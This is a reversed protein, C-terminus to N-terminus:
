NNTKNYNGYLPVTSLYKYKSLDILNLNEEPQSEEVSRKERPKRQTVFVNQKATRTKPDIYMDYTEAQEANWRELQEPTMDKFFVNAENDPEGFYRKLGFKKYTEGVTNTGNIRTTVSPTVFGKNNKALRYMTPNIDTSYGKVVVTKQPKPSVGTYIYRLRNFLTPYDQVLQAATRAFTNQSLPVNDGIANTLTKADALLRKGVPTSDVIRGNIISVDPNLHFEPNTKMDNYRSSFPKGFVAGGREIYGGPIPDQKFTPKNAIYGVNNESTYEHAWDGEFRRYPFSPKTNYNIALQQRRNQVADQYKRFKEYALHPKASLTSNNIGNLLLIDMTSSLNPDGMIGVNEKNWPSVWRQNFAGQRATEAWRTPSIGAGIYSMATQAPTGQSGTVGQYAADTLAFPAGFVFGNFMEFPANPDYASLDHWRNYEGSDQYTTSPTVVIGDKIEPYEWIYQDPNNIQEQTGQMVAPNQLTQDITNGTKKVLTRTM